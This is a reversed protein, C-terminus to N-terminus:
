NTWFSSLLPYHSSPTAGTDIIPPVRFEKMRQHLSDIYHNRSNLDNRLNVIQENAANLALLLRDCILRAADLEFKKTDFDRSLQAFACEQTINQQRIEAIHQSRTSSLEKEFAEHLRSIRDKYERKLWSIRRKYKDNATMSHFILGRLQNVNTLDPPKPDLNARDALGFDAFEERAKPLGDFGLESLEKLFTSSESSESCSETQMSIFFESIMGVSNIVNLGSVLILPMELSNNYAGGDENTPRKSDKTSEPQHHEPSELM